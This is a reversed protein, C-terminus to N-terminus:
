VQRTVIPPKVVLIIKRGSPLEVEQVVGEMAKAAEMTEWEGVYRLPADAYDATVASLLTFKLHKAVAFLVKEPCPHDIEVYRRHMVPPPTEPAKENKNWITRTAKTLKTEQPSPINDSHPVIKWAAKALKSGAGLEKLLEAIVPRDVKTPLTVIVSKYTVYTVDANHKKAVCKDIVAHFDEVSIDTNTCRITLQKAEAKDDIIDAQPMILVGPMKSVSTKQEPTLEVIAHGLGDIYCKKSHFHKPDESQGKVWGKVAGYIAGATSQAANQQMTNKLCGMGQKTAFVECEILKAVENELEMDFELTPMVVRRDTRLAVTRIRGLTEQRVNGNTMNVNTIGIGSTNVRNTNFGQAIILPYSGVEHIFKILTEQRVNGNTMNVNTIGIGSTNVRNTNFGQAIILPYSGVEHIFKIVPSKNLIDRVWGRENNYMAKFSKFGKRCRIAVIDAQSELVKHGFAWGITKYIVNGEADKLVDPIRTLYKETDLPLPPRRDKRPQSSGKAARKRAAAVERRRKEKASATRTADRTQREPSDADRVIDGNDSNKLKAAEDAALAIRQADTLNNNDSTAIANAKAAGTTHAPASTPAGPKDPKPVPKGM